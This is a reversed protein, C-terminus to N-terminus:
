FRSQKNSNWTTPKVLVKYHSPNVKKLYTSEYKKKIEDILANVLSCMEETDDTTKALYYLKLYQEDIIKLTKNIKLSFRDIM